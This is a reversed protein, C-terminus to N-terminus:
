YDDGRGAALFRHSPCLWSGEARAWGCRRAHDFFSTEDVGWTYDGCGPMTCRAFFPPRLAPTALAARRKQGRANVAAQLRKILMM